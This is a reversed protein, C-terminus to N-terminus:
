KALSLGKQVEQEVMKQKIYNKVSASTWKQVDADTLGPSNEPLESLWQTKRTAPDVGVFRAKMKVSNDQNNKITLHHGDYDITIDEGQFHRTPSNRQDEVKLFEIAIPAILETKRQQEMLINLDFEPDSPLEDISIFPSNEETRINDFNNPKPSLKVDKKASEIPQSEDSSSSTEKEIQRKIIPKTIIKHKNATPSTKSQTKLTDILAETQSKIANRNLISTAENEVQTIQNEELAQSNNTDNHKSLVEANTDISVITESKELAEIPPSPSKNTDTNQNTEHITNDTTPSPLSPQNATQYLPESNKLREQQQLPSLPLINTLQQHYPSMSNDDSSNADRIGNAAKEMWQRIQPPVDAEVM